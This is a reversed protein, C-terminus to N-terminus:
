RGTSLWWTSPLVTVPLLVARRGREAQMRRSKLPEVATGRLATGPIRRTKPVLLLVLLLLPPSLPPIEAKQQRNPKPIVHGKAKATSLM